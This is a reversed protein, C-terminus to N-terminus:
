FSYRIGTGFMMALSPDYPFNATLGFNIPVSIHKAFIVDVTFGLGVVANTEAVANESEGKKGYPYINGSTGIKTWAYLMNANRKGDSFSCIKFNLDTAFYYWLTSVNRYESESAEDYFSMGEVDFGIIDNIWSSYQLGFYPKLAIDGNFVVGVSKKNDLPDAFVSVATIFTVFAVALINKLVKRM